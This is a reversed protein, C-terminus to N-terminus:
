DEDDSTDRKHIRGVLVPPVPTGTGPEKEFRTRDLFDQIEPPNDPDDLIILLAPYGDPNNHIRRMVGQLTQFGWDAIKSVMVNHRHHLYVYGTKNPRLGIRESEPPIPYRPRKEGSM